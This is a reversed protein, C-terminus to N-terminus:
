GGRPGGAADDAVAGLRHGGQDGRQAFGLGQSRRRLVGMLVMTTTASTRAPASFRGDSSATVAASSSARAAPALTTATAQPWPSSAATVSSAPAPTARTTAMSPGANA